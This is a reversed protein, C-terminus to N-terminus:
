DVKHVQQHSGVRSYFRRTCNNLARDRRSELMRVAMFTTHYYPQPDLRPAAQQLVLLKYGRRVLEETDALAMPWYFGCIFAKGVLTCSAAHNGCAGEHIEQLIERGEEMRVCNMLIGLASGHKYLNDLSSHARQEVKPHM